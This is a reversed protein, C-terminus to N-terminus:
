SSGARHQHADQSVVAVASHFHQLSDAGLLVLAYPGICRNWSMFREYRNGSYWAFFAEIAYGYAVILGTALM